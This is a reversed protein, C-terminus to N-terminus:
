LQHALPKRSKRADRRMAKSRRLLVWHRRWARRHALQVLRLGVEHEAEGARSEGIRQTPLQFDQACDKGSLASPKEELQAVLSAERVAHRAERDLSDVGAVEGHVDAAPRRLHAIRQLADAAFKLAAPFSRGCRGLQVPRPRVEDARM